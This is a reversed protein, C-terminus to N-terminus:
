ANDKPYISVIQRHLPKSGHYKASFPRRQNDASIAQRNKAMGRSDEPIDITFSYTTSKSVGGSHHCALISAALLFLTVWFVKKM